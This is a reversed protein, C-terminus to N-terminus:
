WIVLFSHVGSFRHSRLSQAIFFSVSRFVPTLCEFISTLPLLLNCLCIGIVTEIKYVQM